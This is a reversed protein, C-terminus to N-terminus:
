GLAHNPQRYNEKATEHLIVAAITLKRPTTM